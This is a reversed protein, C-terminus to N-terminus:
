LRRASETQRFVDTSHKNEIVGGAEDDEYCLRANEILKWALEMDDEDEDDEGGGCLTQCFTSDM